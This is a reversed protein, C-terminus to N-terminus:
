VSMTICLIYLVAIFSYNWTVASFQSNYFLYTAFMVWIKSV